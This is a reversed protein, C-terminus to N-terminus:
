LQIEITTIKRAIITRLKVQANCFISMGHISPKHTRFFLKIHYLKKRLRLSNRVYLWYFERVNDYFFFSLFRSLSFGGQVIPRNLWLDRTKDEYKVAAM